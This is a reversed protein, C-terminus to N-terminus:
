QGGRGAGRRHALAPAHPILLPALTAASRCSSRSSNRSEGHQQRTSVQEDNATLTAPKRDQLQPLRKLPAPLMAQTGSPDGATGGEIRVRIDAKDSRVYGYVADDAAGPNVVLTNEDGVPKAPDAAQKDRHGEM